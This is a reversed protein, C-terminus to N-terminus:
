MLTGSELNPGQDGSLILRENKEESGEHGCIARRTVIIVWAGFLGWNILVDRNFVESGLGCDFVHTVSERRDPVLIRVVSFASFAGAGAAATPTFIGSWVRSRHHNPVFSIGNFTSTPIM